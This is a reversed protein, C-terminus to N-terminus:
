GMICLTTLCLLALFSSGAYEELQIKQGNSMCAKSETPQLLNKGRQGSSCMWARAKFLWTQLRIEMLIGINDNPREEWARMGSSGLLPIEDEPDVTSTESGARMGWRLLRPASEVDELRGAAQKGVRQFNVFKFCVCVLFERTTWQGLSRMGLAPPQLEMGPLLVSDWMSFSIQMRCTLGLAALYSSLYRFFIKKLFLFMSWGNRCIHCKWM